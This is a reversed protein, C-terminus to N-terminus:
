LPRVSGAVVRVQSGDSRGLILSGDFAIGRAIGIGHEESEIPRDILVDRLRLAESLERDIAGHMWDMRRRLAQMISAGLLRHSVRTSTLKDISTARAEVDAPLGGAPTRTNVGIGAVVHGAVAECLVGGLKKGGVVLDNPWEIGVVVDKCSEEIGEAVSVGVMLPLHLPVRTEPIVVSMWLGMGHASHWIAGRRGRGETQEDAVVVSFWNDSSRALELARDNTSSIREYVELTPVGWQDRVGLVPEGEWHTLPVRM